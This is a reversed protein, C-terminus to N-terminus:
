DWRSRRHWTDHDPCDGRGYWGCWGLLEFGHGGMLPLQPLLESKGFEINGVIIGQNRVPDAFAKDFVDDLLQQIGLGSLGLREIPVGRLLQSQASGSM